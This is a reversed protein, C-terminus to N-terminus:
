VEEKHKNLKKMLEKIDERWQLEDKPISAYNGNPLRGGAYRKKKLDFYIGLIIQAKKLKVYPLITQLFYRAKKGSVGWQPASYGFQTKYGMRQIHGGFLDKLEKLIDTNKQTVGTVIQYNTRGRDKRLTSSKNIYIHGEGDFFGAYYAADTETINVPFLM